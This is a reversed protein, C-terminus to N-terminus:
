TLSSFPVSFHSPIQAQRSFGNTVKEVGTCRIHGRQTARRKEQIKRMFVLHHRHPKKIFIFDKPRFIESIIFKQQPV